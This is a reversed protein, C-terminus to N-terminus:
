AHSSALEAPESIARWAQQLTKLLDQVEALVRQDNDSNARILQRQMYAYLADLNEALDGGEKRDLSAQLGHLISITQNIAENRGNIDDHSICGSAKQLRAAAGDFLMEVLEHPSASDVVSAVNLQQYKAIAKNM